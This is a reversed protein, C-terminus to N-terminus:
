LKLLDQLDYISLTLLILSFILTVERDLVQVHFKGTFKKTSMNIKNVEGM